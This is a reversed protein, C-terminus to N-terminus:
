KERLWTHKRSCVSVRQIAGTFGTTIDSDRPIDRENNFGGIYLKQDLNLQTLTDQNVCVCVCM